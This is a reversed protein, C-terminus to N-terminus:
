GNDGGTIDTAVISGPEIEAAGLHLDAMSAVTPPDGPVFILDLGARWNALERAEREAKRRRRGSLAKKIKDAM